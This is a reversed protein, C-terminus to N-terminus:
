CLEKFWLIFEKVAPFLADFECPKVSVDSFAILENIVNEIDDRGSLHMSFMMVIDAIDYDELNPLIESGSYVLKVQSILENYKFLILDRRSTTAM